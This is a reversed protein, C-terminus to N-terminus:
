FLTWLFQNLGRTPVSKKRGEGGHWALPSLPGRARETGCLTGERGSRAAHHDAPKRGRLKSRLSINDPLYRQASRLNQNPTEWRPRDQLHLVDGHLSQCRAGRGPGRYAHQARQRHPHAGDRATSQHLTSRNPAEFRILVRYANVSSNFLLCIDNGHTLIRRCNWGLKSLKEEGEPGSCIRAMKASSVQTCAAEMSRRRGSPSSCATFGL